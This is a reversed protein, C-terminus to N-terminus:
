FQDLFPSRGRNNGPASGPAPRPAPSAPARPEAAPGPRSVEEGGLPRVEPDRWPGSIRYDRRGIRDIAGGTIRDTLLMAAGVLPGGAVAGALAVGTGLRPTVQLTADIQERALNLNGTLRLDAASAAVQIQEIRAIGTGIALRGEIRDFGFGEGFLDSFDLTLRRQLSDLNLVGLLRGVGTEVQLLRGAGLDLDLQGRARTADLDDPGGPWNLTLTAETPAGSLNRYLGQAQLWGGLDSSTAQLVINTSTFGSADTTWRGDGRVSLPPSTLALDAFEVGDARPRTLIQLRGLTREGLALAEIQLDLRGLRHPDGGDADGDQRARGTALLPALDLRALRIRLPQDSGTAPADIRGTTEAATFTLTWGGGPVLELRADAATLALAGLEVRESRLRSPLLTLGEQDGNSAPQWPPDAFWALWPDLRLVGLQGDVVLGPREPLDPAPGAPNVAARAIRVGSPDRALEVQAGLDGLTVAASVPWADRYDGSIRLPRAASAPKGLPAPLELAIGRLESDLQLDLLPAATSRTPGADSDAAPPQLYAPDVRVALHWDTAGSALAWWPGPARQALEAISTRGHVDILVPASREAPATLDVTISQADFRAALGRVRAGENDFQLRGALDTFQLGGSEQQPKPGTITLTPEGDVQLTGAFRFPLGRRLPIGLELDLAGNGTAALVRPLGGLQEALPTEALMWLGDSLPGRGSATVQLTRPQWLNPLQVQGATIATSRIRGDEVQIDLAQQDIRLELALDELLPWTGEQATAAPPTYDFRGDTIELRVLFRGDRDAFPFDALHGRLLLDGSVLRGGLIAGDLWDVLQPDMNAVPLYAGAAEADGDQLHLHADLFPSPAAPDLRFLFRGRAAVDATAATLSRSWVTLPGDLPGRWALDAALQKFETAAALRPRLDIRAPRGSVQLHGGAPGADIALDLGTLEPLPGPRALTLDQLKAQLRWDPAADPAAPLALVFAIATLQGAVPQNLLAALPRDVGADVPAAESGTESGTESGAAPASELAAVVAAGLRTLPVLPLGDSVAYLRPGDASAARRLALAMRHDVRAAPRRARPDAAAASAPADADGNVVPLRLDTLQLTWGHPDAHWQGRAYLDGIALPTPTTVAAVTAEHEVPEAAPGGRGLVLAALELTGTLESLRGDQLRGWTELGLDGAAPTLPAPLWAAPWAPTLQALDAAQLRLYFSGSWDQPRETLGQLHAELELSSGPAAALHGRLRLQHQQGRNLLELGQVQLRLPATLTTDQGPTAGPEAGSETPAAAEAAPLVLTSDSLRFRGERLFFDLGGPDEGAIGGLGRIGVGGDPRRVLAFEGGILTVGTIRPQWARLTALLDLELALAEIRLLVHGDDPDRLRADDLYLRPTLRRLRVELQGVEVTTGLLDGLRATLEGRLGDAHPLALRLALTLLALAILLAATLNATRALISKFTVVM